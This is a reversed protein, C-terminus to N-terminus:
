AEVESANFSDISTRIGGQRLMRVVEGVGNWSTAPDCGVDIVDAGNANLRRATTLVTEVPLQPVHNIEAIIEIDFAGYDPPPGSPRGFFEPLDRLDKPGREAPLSTRQALPELEGQCLGPLLIGEAGSPVVLHNAGWDTTLLAAVSIPLVAVEAEFGAKPGLDALLRRLAREALKGTVFLIRSRDAVSARVGSVGIRWFGYYPR